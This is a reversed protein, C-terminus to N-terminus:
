KAGPCGPMPTEFTYREGAYTVALGGKDCARVSGSEFVLAKLKAKGGTAQRTTAELGALYSVLTPIIDDRTVEKLAQGGLDTVQVGGVDEYVIGLPSLTSHMVTVVVYKDLVMPLTGTFAPSAIWRVSVNGAAGKSHNISSYDAALQQPTPNWPRAQLPAIAAICLVLIAPITKRM